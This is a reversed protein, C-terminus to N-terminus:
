RPKSTPTNVPTNTPWRAWVTTPGLALCLLNGSRSSNSANNDPDSAVAVLNSDARMVWDSSAYNLPTTPGSQHWWEIPTGSAAIKTQSSRHRAALMPALIMMILITGIIEVFTFRSTQGAADTAAGM